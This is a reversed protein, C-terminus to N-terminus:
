NTGTDNIMSNLQNIIKKAKKPCISTSCADIGKGTKKEWIEKLEKFFINRDPNSRSLVLELWIDSIPFGIGWKKVFNKFKRKM